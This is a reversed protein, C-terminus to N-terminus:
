AKPMKCRLVERGEAKRVIPSEKGEANRASPSRQRRSKARCSKGQGRCKAGFSKEAKPKECSLVKRARPMERRLVKQKLTLMKPEGSCHLAISHSACIATRSLYSAITILLSRLTPRMILAWGKPVTIQCFYWQNAAILCYRLGLSSENSGPMAM